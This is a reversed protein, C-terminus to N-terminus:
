ARLRTSVLATQASYLGNQATLVTLYSALGNQFLQRSLDLARQEANRMPKAADAGRQVQLARPSM